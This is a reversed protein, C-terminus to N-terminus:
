GHMLKQIFESLVRAKEDSLASSFYVETAGKKGLTITAVSKNSVKVDLVKSSTPTTAIDQADANTLAAFVASAKLKSTSSTLKKAVAFCAKPNKQLAERLPKAWRYQLDLPSPFASVIEAPLEALSIARGLNGVDVGLAEALKKNSQFLGDELATRYSMGQEWPALNKRNRNERDMEVFLAQDDMDEVIALVDLKNQKCAELRRHGFIVEFKGGEIKRVKIPQVNGGANKIEERLEAFEVGEFNDEHRNAYKSRNILNTPIKRTPVAGDWALAQAKFAENEKLMQSRTDAVRQFEAGPATAANSKTVSSQHETGAAAPASWDVGEFKKKM